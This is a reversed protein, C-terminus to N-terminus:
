PTVKKYTIHLHQTMPQTTTAMSVTQELKGDSNLRFKRTIQAKKGKGDVQRSLSIRSRKWGWFTELGFEVGCQFQSDLSQVLLHQTRGAESHSGQTQEM